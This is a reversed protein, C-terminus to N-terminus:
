IARHVPNVLSRPLLLRAVTLVPAACRDRPNLNVALVSAEAKLDVM